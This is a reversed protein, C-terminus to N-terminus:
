KRRALAELQEPNTSSDVLVRFVGDKKDLLAAPSDYEVVRGADMVLVRDSDIITDLRHAITVVTKDAFMERIVKQIHRDSKADIRSTAEDLVVIRCESLIARAICLLQKEGASLQTTLVTELKDPFRKVKETLTIKDLVRWLDQETYKGLPDLNCRLTTTFIVPEQPIIAISKRLVALPIKDTEYNDLKIHGRFGDAIRFLSSIITSKGAGTRGVVGVKEGNKIEFTLGKLIPDGNEEYKLWFDDYEIKGSFASPQVNKNLDSEVEPIAENKIFMHSQGAQLGLLGDGFAKVTWQFFVLLQMANSLALGLSSPDTKFIYSFCIVIFIYFSVYIDVYFGRFCELLGLTLLYQHNNDMIKYLTNTFQTNAKFCRVCTIGDVTVNLHTYIDPRTHLEKSLLNYYLKKTILQTCIILFVLVISISWTWPILAITYGLGGLSLPLFMLVKFLSEPMEDLNISLVM